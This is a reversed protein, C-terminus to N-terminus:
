TYERSSLKWIFHVPGEIIKGLRATLNILRKREYFIAFRCFQFQACVLLAHECSILTKLELRSKFALRDHFILHSLAYRSIVVYRNIFAPFYHVDVQRDSQYRTCPFSLDDIIERSIQEVEKERKKAPRHRATANYKKRTLKRFNLRHNPFNWASCRRALGRIELGCLRILASFREHYLNVKSCNLGANWSADLIFRRHHQHM